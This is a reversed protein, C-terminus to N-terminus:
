DEVVANHSAIRCRSLSIEGEHRRAFLAGDGISCQITPM